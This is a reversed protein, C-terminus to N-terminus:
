ELHIPRVHLKTEEEGFTLYYIKGQSITYYKVNSNNLHAVYPTETLGEVQIHGLRKGELDL